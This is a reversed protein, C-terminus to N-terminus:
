DVTSVQLTDHRIVRTRVVQVDVSLMKILFAPSKKGTFPPTRHTASRTNWVPSQSRREVIRDRWNDSDSAVINMHWPEFWAVMATNALSTLKLYVCLFRLSLRVSFLSSTIMIYM